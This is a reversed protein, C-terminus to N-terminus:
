LHIRYILIDDHRLSVFPISVPSNLPLLNVPVKEEVADSEFPIILPLLIFQYSILSEM